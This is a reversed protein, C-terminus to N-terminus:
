YKRSGRRSSLGLFKRVRRRVKRYSRAIFGGSRYSNPRSQNSLTSIVADRRKLDRHEKEARTSRGSSRSRSKERITSQQTSDCSTDHQQEAHGANIAPQVDVAVPPTDTSTRPVAASEDRPEESEERSRSRRSRGSRSSESNSSRGDGNSSRSRRSRSRGSSGQQSVRVSGPSIKWGKTNTSKRGDERRRGFLNKLSLSPRVYMERCHPCSYTRTFVVLLLWQWKYPPTPELPDRCFSCRYVSM